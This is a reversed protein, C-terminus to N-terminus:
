HGGIIHSASGTRSAQDALASLGGVLPGIQSAILPISCAGGTIKVHGSEDQDSTPLFAVCEPGLCEKFGNWPCRKGLFLPALGAALRQDNAQVKQRITDKEEDTM